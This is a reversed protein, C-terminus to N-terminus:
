SRAGRARARGRVGGRLDFVPVRDLNRIRRRLHRRAQVGSATRAQAAAQAGGARRAVGAARHACRLLGQAEPRAPAAVSSAKSARNACCSRRACCTRSRRCSGRISRPRTSSRSCRGVPAFRTPWTCFATRDPGACNTRSSIPAGRRDAAPHAARRLGRLRTGPQAAGQQMSEQFTRGIAMAEGVSKMQTTLRTNPVPFNRSRSARSRPSWTISRRSSPPRPEAARSKTRSSM